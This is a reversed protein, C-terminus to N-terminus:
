RESRVAEGGSVVRKQGFVGSCQPAFIYYPGGPLTKEECCVECTKSTGLWAWSGCGSLRRRQLDGALTLLVTSVMEGRAVSM